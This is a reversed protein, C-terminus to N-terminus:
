DGSPVLEFHVRYNIEFEAAQAHREVYRMANQITDTQRMLEMNHLQRLWDHYEALVALTSLNDLWERYSEIAQRQYETM